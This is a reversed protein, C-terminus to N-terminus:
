KVPISQAHRFYNQPDWQQKVQVLNRPARRYNEQFYLEMAQDIKGNEHTGLDCDPYNYYCGDVVGDKDNQPNPTGGYDAYVSLYFGNIWDLHAQAQERSSGGHRQGPLSDNNWYTQYQLKMISSRQPVPTSASSYENIVGGYSDVQLLSQKLADKDMGEPQHHLWTYIQHKQCSPFAKNMYASKYKGFQNPGSGNVTQLAELYTLHQPNLHSHTTHMWGPHGGMPQQLAAAPAIAAFRKELARVRADVQQCHQQFSVGPLAAFQVLLGIQGNSVHNLKLLSFDTNPMGACIEAYLDLLRDFTKQDIKDWDWAFSWQTAYDPADPLKAFYYRVIVGFNGCGAGRLAWFLDREEQSGSHESVHRLKAQGLAADWTVIDVASLHDVTLGHLRSLLGYGGGSIHGGAGVSYCSGAPLTKGYRNLLVRYASWNECGADVFYANREADFGAQNIASMDIIARTSDNYVFNEYCHRGSAIKVDHGFESLASAVYEEVQEYRSPVYVAKLNPAFWRRDFGQKDSLILPQDGGRTPTQKM